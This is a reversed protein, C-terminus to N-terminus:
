NLYNNEFLWDVSEQIVRQSDTHLPKFNLEKRIKSDDFLRTNCYRDVRTRTILVEQDKPTTKEKFWAFLYALWYPYKKEPRPTKCADSYFNFYDRQNIDFSKVNYAKGKSNLNRASEIMARSSDRADVMTFSNKGNGIYPIKQNMLGQCVRLSTLVDRPGVILSNRIATYNLDNEHFKTQLYEESKLKSLQYANAPNKKYDETIPYKPFKFGYVGYSSAFVFKESANSNLFEEVLTVTGTHNVKMMVDPTVAENIVIAANHYATSVDKMIGKLSNPDGLDGIFPKVGLKVLDQYDEFDRVLFRIDKAKIGEEEILYRVLVGGLFGTAGTVLIVM